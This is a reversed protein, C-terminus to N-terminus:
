VPNDVPDLAIEAYVAFHDSGFTGEPGPVDLAVRADLISGRGDENLPGIFVYDIRRNREVHAAVLPNRASWTYGDHQNRVRAFADRWYTSKGRLSKRGTLFRISDADPTANFDGVMVTPLDHHRGRAFADVAVVQEERVVAADLEWSLHTCIFGLRGSATDLDVALACRYDGRPTPLPVVAANSMPLRAVVANGIPGGPSHPDAAAFHYTGEIARAFEEAQRMGGSVERVEQLGIVDPRLAKAEAVATEMRRRVEGSDGWLNLTLVRLTRTSSPM